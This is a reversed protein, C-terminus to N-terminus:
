MWSSCCDWGGMKGQQSFHQAKDWDEWSKSRCSPIRCSWRLSQPIGADRGQGPSGLGAWLWLKCAGWKKSGRHTWVRPTSGPTGGWGHPGPSSALPGWAPAVRVILLLGSQWSGVPSRAPKAPRADRVWVSATTKCMRGLIWAPNHKNLKTFAQIFLLNKLCFCQLLLFLHNKWSTCNQWSFEKGHKRHGCTAKLALLIIRKWSHVYNRSYSATLGGWQHKRNAVAAIQRVKRM